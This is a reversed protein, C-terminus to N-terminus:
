RRQYLLDLNQRAVSNNPDLRLAERYEAEAAASNGQAQLALGLNNHAGSSSPNLRIAERCESEAQSYMRLEYLALGLGYHSEANKPDLRIAEQYQSEAELYNKRNLLSSGLYIHASVYNPDLRITERYESEADAYRKQDFLTSGLGNHPAAFGPDLGIAKRYEAEADAYKKQRYLSLGLGYHARAYTSDLRIAERYETEADTRKNQPELAGGLTNHYPAYSPDIRIANRAETEAEADKDQDALAVSLYQHYDANGPQTLLAKRYYAEIRPLEEPRKIKHWEEEAASNKNQRTLAVFLEFHAVPDTPQLEVAHRYEAEAQPWKRNAAFDDGRKNYTAESPPEAAQLLVLVLVPIALLLCLGILAGVYHKWTLRSLLPGRAPQQTAAIAAQSQWYGMGANPGGANPGGAPPGGPQVGGPSFTSQPTTGRGTGAAPWIGPPGAINPNAHGGPSPAGPAAALSGYPRPWQQEPPAVRTDAIPGAVQAPWSAGALLAQRFDAATQFRQNPNKALAKMIASEIGPPINPAFARPPPPASEMQLRMLEYESNSIFPARGTLMEYLLIGLSYIDSRSDTELGQVQEPSMYEITGVVSGQRTMRASGLVRAIGFDMVKTLGAQNLMINAPKIDRHVIGMKHAHDIGDLAQCFVPIAFNPPMPGRTRLLQDLTEGRVFEMVMFFDDGQRLFNFLTAINPHNLRALTVAEARFREVIDAQRALDPRLAKIAVERELMLDIGKFVAGMGGEGIRDVIKYSGVVTGIM